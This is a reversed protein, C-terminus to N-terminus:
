RFTGPSFEYLRRGSATRPDILPRLTLGCADALRRGRLTLFGAASWLRVGLAALDRADRLVGAARARLINEATKPGIGPVRLLRERDATLVEVPFEEPHALAWATKPDVELPLNGHGDFVVEDLRFGYHRLLYDVQYLRHERLAPTEPRNELPTARIPRFASFHAHHLVRERYLREVLTLIQRDTDDAAGVVFQTTIGSRLVPRGDARLSEALRHVETLTRLYLTFNKQPAIQRLVDPCPAELNLSVRDALEVVRRLQASDAGAVVKVHIYGRYGERFRLIELLRILRDVTDRPSLPIGSTVFLGDAWGRRYTTMFVHALQEPSVEVRPLDRDRRMPCYYCNFVCANTLLIRFIRFTRGGHRLPRINIPRLASHRLGEDLDDVAMELLIRIKEALEM